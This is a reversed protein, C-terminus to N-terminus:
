ATLAYAGPFAVFKKIQKISVPCEDTWDTTSILVALVGTGPPCDPETSFCPPLSEVFPTKEGQGNLLLIPIQPNRFDWHPNEQWSIGYQEGKLGGTVKGSGHKSEIKKDHLM